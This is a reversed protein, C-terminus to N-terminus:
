DCCATTSYAKSKAHKISTVATSHLVTPSASECAQRGVMWSMSPIYLSCAQERRYSFCHRVSHDVEDTVAKLALQSPKNVTHGNTSLDSTQNHMVFANQVHRAVANCEKGSPSNDVSCKKVQTLSVARVLHHNHRFGAATPLGRTRQRRVQGLAGLNARQKGRNPYQLDECRRTGEESMKTRSILRLISKNICCRLEEVGFHRLQLRAEGGLSCVTILMVAAVRAAVRASQLPLGM